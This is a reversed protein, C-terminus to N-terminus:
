GELMLVPQQHPLLNHYRVLRDFLPQLNAWKGDKPLLNLFRGIHGEFMVNDAIQSRTFTPIIIRRGRSWARGDSTIIGRGTMPQTARERIPGVGFKEQETSLIIQINRADVTSVVRKDLPFSEFTNGHEQHQSYVTKIKRNQRLQQLNDLITDLGFLYSRAPLRRPAACGHRRRQVRTTIARSLRPLVVYLLFLLTLVTEHISQFFMTCPFLDCYNMEELHSFRQRAPNLYFHQYLHLVSPM